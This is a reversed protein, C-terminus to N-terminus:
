VICPAVAIWARRGKWGRPLERAAVFMAMAPLVVLLRQLTAGPAVSLPLWASPNAGVAARAELAFRARQPSLVAVLAPPLPVLAFLMWAALAALCYEEATIWSNSRRRSRLALCAFSAVAIAMAVWQWIIPDVGGEFFAAAALSMSLTCFAMWRAVRRWPSHGVPLETGARQRGPQQQGARQRQM